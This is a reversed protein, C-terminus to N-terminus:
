VRNRLYVSRSNTTQGCISFRDTRDSSWDADSNVRLGRKSRLNRKFCRTHEATGKLHRLLHKGNNKLQVMLSKLYNVSWLADLTM